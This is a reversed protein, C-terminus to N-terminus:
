KQGSQQQKKKMEMLKAFDDNTTSPKASPVPSASADKNESLGRLSGKRALTGRDKHILSNFFNALVQHEDQQKNPDQVLSAPLNTAIPTVSPPPPKSIPSTTPERQSVNPSNSITPTAAVGSSTNAVLTTPEPQPQPTTAAGLKQLSSMLSNPKKKEKDDKEILDKHEALFEQDDAAVIVTDITPANLHQFRKPIVIVEEYPQEPDKTLSQNEFDVNIKTMSDAGVPIFLIDKEFLQPKHNFDFYYLKHKLYQLLIDINKEKKASAYVLGAGYRLCIRRIYQQIYEFHVEKYNYEKELTTMIDTKCCVVLIPIGLNVQLLGEALPLLAQEDVVKKKKFTQKSTQGTTEKPEVYSQFEYIVTNKLEDRLGPTVQNLVAKVHDELIKLWRNLSEIMRWPQSFDLCIIALSNAINSPTLAIKLLQKHEVDGELQWVNMRSVPDDDESSVIDLFSYDLALGNRLGAIDLGQLRAVLTSKGCNRDGLVVINKSELRDSASRSAESLIKEWLNGEEKDNDLTTDKQTETELGM